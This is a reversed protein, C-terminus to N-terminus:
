VRSEAEIVELERLEKEKQINEIMNRHINLLNFNHIKIIISNRIFFIM